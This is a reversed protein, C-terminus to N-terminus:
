VSGPNQSNNEPLVARTDVTAARHAVLLANTILDQLKSLQQVIKREPKYRINQAGFVEYIINGAQNRIRAEFFGDQQTRSDSDATANACAYCLEQGRVPQCFGCRTCLAISAEGSDVTSLSNLRRLLEDKCENARDHQIQSNPYMLARAHSELALTVLERNVMESAPLLSTLQRESSAGDAVSNKEENM